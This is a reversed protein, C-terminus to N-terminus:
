RSSPSAEGDVLVLAPFLSRAPRVYGGIRPPDAAGDMLRRRVAPAMLVKAPFVNWCIPDAALMAAAQNVPRVALPV